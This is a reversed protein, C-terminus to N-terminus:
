NTNGKAFAKDCVGLMILSVLTNCVFIIIIWQVMTLGTFSWMADGCIGNPEFVSPLWQDLKFFSPFNAMFGCTESAAFPNKLSEKYAIEYGRHEISIILGLISFIAWTASASLRVFYNKPITLGIIAAIGYFMFCAREYVCEICPNLKLYYQFYLGCAEYFVFGCLLFFWLYRSHPTFYNNFFKKILNM